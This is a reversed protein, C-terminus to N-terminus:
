GKNRFSLDALETKCTRVPNTELQFLKRCDTEAVLLEYFSLFILLKSFAIAKWRQLGM